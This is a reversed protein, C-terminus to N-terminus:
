RYDGTLLLTSILTTRSGALTILVLGLASLVGGILVVRATGHRRALMCAVPQAAGWALQSAAFAFSVTAAGLATATNIPGVFLGMSSRTGLLVAMLAAAALVPATFGAASNGASTKM